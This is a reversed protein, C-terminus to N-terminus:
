RAERMALDIEDMADFDEGSFDCECSAVDVVDMSDEFTRTYQEIERTEHEAYELPRPAHQETASVLGSLTM